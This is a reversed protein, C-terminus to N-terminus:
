KFEALTETIRNETLQRLAIDPIKSCSELARHLYERTYKINGRLGELYGLAHYGNALYLPNELQEWRSLARKLNAQAERYQQLAIQAIAISHYSMAIYHVHEIRLAEELAINLWQLAAEYKLHELYLLGEEYALLCYSPNYDVQTFLLSAIELFDKAKQPGRVTRYIDALIFATRAMELSNKLMYWRAYSMQAHELAAPIEERHAYAAALTYHLRARLTMDEVQRALALVEKVFEADFSADLRLSQLKIIGIYASLMMEATRGDRARQLATEFSSLAEQHKGEIYYSEGMQAWIHMQLENDQVEQANLLADFM